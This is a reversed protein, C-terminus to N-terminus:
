HPSLPGRALAIVQRHDPDTPLSYAYGRAEVAYTGGKFAIGLAGTGNREDQSTFAQEIVSETLVPINLYSGKDLWMPSPWWKCVQLTPEGQNLQDHKEVCSM